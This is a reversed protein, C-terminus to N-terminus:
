DFPIEIMRGLPLSYIYTKDPNKGFLQCIARRYCALQNGHDKMMKKVLASDNDRIADDIRDTKYDILLIKGDATELLLDISGQVFMSHKSLIEEKRRQVTM